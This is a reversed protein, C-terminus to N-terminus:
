DESRGHSGGRRDVSRDLFACNIRPIVIVTVLEESCVELFCVSVCLSM